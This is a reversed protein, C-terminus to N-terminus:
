PYLNKHGIFWSRHGCNTCELTRIQTDMYYNKHRCFLRKLFKKM